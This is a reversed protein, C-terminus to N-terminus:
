FKRCFDFSRRICSIFYYFSVSHLQLKNGQRSFVLRINSRLDDFLLHKWDFGRDPDQNCAEFPLRLHSNIVVSITAKWTNVQLHSHSGQLLCIGLSLRHVTQLRVLFPIPAATLIFSSQRLIHTKGNVETVLSVLASNYLTRLKM